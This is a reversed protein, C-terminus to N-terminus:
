FSGTMFALAKEPPPFAKCPLVLSLVLIERGSIHLQLAICRRELIRRQQHHGIHVGDDDPRHEGVGRHFSMM